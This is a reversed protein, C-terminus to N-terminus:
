DQTQALLSPGNDLFLAILEALLEQDGDAQRLAAEQDWIHPAVTPAQDNREGRCTNEPKDESQGGRRQPRTDVPSPSLIMEQDFMKSPLWRALVQFLREAQIPKSLYDDMGAALCLEQDGAMANATMAVIPVHPCSANSTKSDGGEARLVEEHKRIAATAQLGDMEPMQWDMLVLDYHNNLVAKVAEKGNTVTEVLCGAKKLLRGIIKQNVANDEVVLVRGRIKMPMSATEPSQMTSPDITEEEEPQAENEQLGFVALLAAYLRNHRIPKAVCRIRENLLAKVDPQCRGARILFIVPLDLCCSHARLTQIFAPVDLGTGHIDLIIADYPSREDHNLLRHPIQSPETVEEYLIGAKQLMDELVKRTLAYHELVLVRRGALDQCANQHNVQSEDPPSVRHAEQIAFPIRVWFVSGKGPESELGITGGMLETLQKSIALGLGTGGYKRTTTTDAQSFAQFLTRQVEQSIGIGTDWVVFELWVSQHSPNQIVSSPSDARQHPEAGNIARVEVGVEGQHTFKLANGVLNTLIQRVRGPDGLLLCPTAPDIYGALEVQKDAAGVAFLELVEELLTHLDFPISELALKGAEIKSFDLIDNIITLLSEASKQITKADEYQESTLPTDLLLNTIGLIGNLPTRIEHSMTALFAAKARTAAEAKNLADDLEANKQALLDVFAGLEETARKRETIDMGYGRVIGLNLLPCFLWTFQRDGVHVEVDEESAALTLCRKVLNVVDHPLAASFGAPAFGAREMLRTMAPNAYLLNADQDLEVIPFPSEEPISALRQLDEELHIQAALDRLGVVVGSCMLEALPVATMEVLRVEGSRCMISLRPIRLSRATELVEQIPCLPEDCADPHYECRALAHFAQGKSTSESWGLFRVAEQNLSVITGQQDLIWVPMALANLVAYRFTQETALAQELQQKTLKGAKARTM